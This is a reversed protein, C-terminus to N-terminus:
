QKQSYALSLCEFCFIIFIGMLPGYLANNNSDPQNGLTWADAMFLSIFLLSVLFLQM